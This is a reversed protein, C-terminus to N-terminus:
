VLTNTKELEKEFHPPIAKDSPVPTPRQSNAKQNNQVEAINDIQKQLDEFKSNSPTEETEEKKEESRKQPEAKTEKLEKEIEDVRETLKKAELDKETAAINRMQISTRLKVVDSNIKKLKEDVETNTADSIAPTTSEKPQSQAHELKDLRSMLEQKDGDLGTKRVNNVEEKTKIKTLEMQVETVAERQVELKKEMLKMEDRLSERNEERTETKVKNM